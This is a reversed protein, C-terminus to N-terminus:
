DGELGNVPIEIKLHTEPYDSLLKISGGYDKLTDEIITLGLGTGDKNTTYLPEFIHKRDYSEITKGNNITDIYILDGIKSFEITLYKNTDEGQLLAKYANTIINTVISEFDGYYGSVEKKGGDLDISDIINIKASIKDFTNKFDEAVQRFVDVVDILEEKDQKERKLYGRFFDVKENITNLYKDLAMVEGNLRDDTNLSNSILTKIEDFSLIANIILKETEHGFQAASIGLSAINRYIQLERNQFREKKKLEKSTESADDIIKDAIVTIDEYDKQVSQLIENVKNIADITSTSLKEDNPIDIKNTEKDGDNEVVKKPIIKNNFLSTNNYIKEVEEKKQQLKDKKEIVAKKLEDNSKLLKSYLEKRIDGDVKEKGRYEVFAAYHYYEFVSSVFDRLDSFEKSEYLSERSLVDQLGPNNDREIKVGGIIQNTSLRYEPDKTRKLNLWLWDNEKDGYPKVRFNDRYLKIGGYEDLMDTFKAREIELGRTLRGDRLFAYAEFIVPGCTYNAEDKSIFRTYQVGTEKNSNRKNIKLELELKIDGTELIQGFLRAHYYKLLNLDVRGSKSPFDNCEVNIELDDKFNKSLSGINLPKILYLEKKLEIISDENWIDRLGELIITTGNKNIDAKVYRIPHKIETFFRDENEYVDWNIVMEILKDAGNVKTIITVKKALREVSFRGIGKEGLKRRGLDSTSDQVKNDTGIVMWKNVIDDITMGTGNDSITLRSNGNILNEFIINIEKADADYSNKALELVAIIPSSILNRGILQSIRSSVNFGVENIENLDSNIDEKM